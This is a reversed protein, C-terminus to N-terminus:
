SSPLGSSSATDSPQDCPQDRLHRPEITRGKSYDYASAAALGEACRVWFGSEPQDGANRSVIPFNEAVWDRWEAKRDEPVGRWFQDILDDDTPGPRPVRRSTTEDRERHQRLDNELRPALQNPYLIPNSILGSKIAVMESLTPSLRTLHDEIEQWYASSPTPWHIPVAERIQHLWTKVPSRAPRSPADM